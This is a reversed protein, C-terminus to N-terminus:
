RSPIGLHFVVIDNGIDISLIAFHLNNLRFMDSIRRPIEQIIGPLRVLDFYIDEFVAEGRETELKSRPCHIRQHLALSQPHDASFAFWLMWRVRADSICPM